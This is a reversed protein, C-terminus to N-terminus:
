NEAGIMGALNRAIEELTEPDPIKESVANLIADALDRVDKIPVGGNKPPELGFLRIKIEAVDLIRKLLEPNPKAPSHTEDIQTVADDTANPEPAKAGIANLVQRAGVRRVRREVTGLKSAAWTERAEAEVFACSDLVSEWAADRGALNRASWDAAMDRMLARAKAPSTGLRRALAYNPIKPDAKIIEMMRAKLEEDALDRTEAQFSEPEIPKRRM